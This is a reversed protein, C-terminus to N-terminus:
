QQQESEEVQNILQVLARAAAPSNPNLERLRRMEAKWTPDFMVKSLSRVRRNFAADEGASVLTSIPGRFLDRVGQILGGRLERKIEERAATQSGVARGLSARRLGKELFKLNKTQEQNLASFLIKTQKARARGSGFIASFLQGPINDVVTETPLDGILKSTDGIRREMEVRLLDDWAGDSVEDIAKKALRINQVNTEAPDLLRRSIDKLTTDDVNALKGIISRKIKNVPTSELEFRGLAKAYRESSKEMQNLLAEKAIVLQRKTTTGINKVEFMDDIELKARHLKELSPEVVKKTTLGEKTVGTKGTKIPAIFKLIKEMRRSVEGGPPFGSIIGRIKERVPKVDVPPDEEFAEKFFPSTREKRINKAREVAEKAATRFNETGTTLVEPPAIQGLFDDVAQAAQENQASLAKQARTSSAPLQALFAQKELQAPVLTQQAQFLPIGTQKSVQGGEVISRGVDGLEQRAVEQAAARRSQRVAQIAPLVTEAAGGLAGAIAVEGPDVEGGALAQIGEIGAQTGASAAAGAAVKGGLRAPISAAAGAPLFASVIGLGQLVDIKSIGPRNLIVQVGTKNNAAILNGGPDQAIGINPFNSTLIQAIEQPSTTALLVPALAAAKVNSEGSLLGGSALEPLEQAARTEGREEPFPTPPVFGSLDEPQAQPQDLTFGPPLGVSTPIGIDAQNIQQQDLVFGAPLQGNAM